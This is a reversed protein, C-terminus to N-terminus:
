DRKVGQNKLGELRALDLGGLVDKLSDIDDGHGSVEVTFRDGVIATYEGRQDAKNWKEHYTRGDDQWTKEFGQDTDQEREIGFAGAMALLGKAGGTDTLTVTVERKGDASAYSAEANAAQIGMVTQREASISKRALGDLNDPLFSKLEDPALATIAGDSGAMAGMMAGMAQSAAAHDGSKQAADLKASAAAMRKGITDLRGLTSDKDVTVSSGDGSAMGLGHSALHGAAFLGGLILALIWALIVAVVVTVATYGAAKEPPCHMTEPLGLYLLYISYVGGAIMVLWGLWPILMGIGAIWAATYAYGVAKLAQTQNKQAGFTPALANVILAVVYVLALGLVYGVVMRGIGSAIGTRVTVGFASYGILSGKIFMCVVPIAALWVLYDRYINAVTTTEGAIVPWESRPRTLIAKARAVIKSFDM